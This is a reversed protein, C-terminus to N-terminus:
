GQKSYQGRLWAAASDVVEDLDIAAFRGARDTHGSRGDVLWLTVRLQEGSLELRGELVFDAGCEAAFERVDGVRGVYSLATTPSVLQVGGQEGIRVQLEEILRIAQESLDAAARVPLVLLSPLESGNATHSASEDSWVFRFLYSGSSQVRIREGAGERDYYQM